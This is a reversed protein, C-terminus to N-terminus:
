SVSWVVTSQPPGTIAGHPPAAGGLAEIEGLVKVVVESKAAAGRLAAVDGTRRAYYSADKKGLEVGSDSKAKLTVKLVPADLGYDAPAKPADVFESVDVGGIKFLADEVKTTDLEKADPAARKWQTM